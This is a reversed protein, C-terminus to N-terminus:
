FTFLENILGLYARAAKSNPRFKFVDKHSFNAENIADDFPISTTLLRAGASRPLLKQDFPQVIASSNSTVALYGIAALNPNIQKATKIGESMLTFTSPASYSPIFPVIVMDAAVLANLTLWDLVSPTDIFVFDYHQKIKDLESKIKLLQEPHDSDPTHTLQEDSVIGPHSPVLSLNALGTPYIPLPKGNYLAAYISEEKRFQPSQPLLFSSSGIALPDIDVFLVKKGKRALGAALSIATTTKGSGGQLSALAIVPTGRPFTSKDKAM